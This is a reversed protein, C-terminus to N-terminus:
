QEKADLGADVWAQAFADGEFIGSADGEAIAARLAALKDQYEQEQLELTRLAARMVDSADEYHGSAVESEIFRDLADTLQVQRM